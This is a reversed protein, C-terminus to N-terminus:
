KAERKVGAGYTNYDIRIQLSHPLQAVKEKSLYWKAGFSTQVLYGDGDPISSSISGGSLQTLADQSPTTVTNAPTTSPDSTLPLSPPALIPATTLPAPLPIPSLTVLNPNPSITPARGTPTSLFLTILLGVTLGSLIFWIM